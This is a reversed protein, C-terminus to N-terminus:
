LRQLIDAYAHISLCSPASNRALERLWIAVGRAKDLQAHLRENEKLLEPADAILRANATAADVSPYQGGDHGVLDAVIQYNPVSMILYDAGDGCIDSERKWPGPSHGKYKRSLALLRTTANM